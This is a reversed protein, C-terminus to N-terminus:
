VATPEYTVAAVGRHQDILSPRQEILIMEVGHMRAFEILEDVLNETPFLEANSLACRGDQLSLFHHQRCVFGPQMREASVFLRTALFQNVAELVAPLGTMLIGRAAYEGLRALATAEEEEQLRRT